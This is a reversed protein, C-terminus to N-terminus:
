LKPTTTLEVVAEATQAKAAKAKFGRHKVLASIDEVVDYDEGDVKLKVTPLPDPKETFAVAQVHEIGFPRAVEFADPYEVDLNVKSADIYYSQTIPVKQGGALLYVLRVYAPRNVRLHLKLEEKDSFALDTRGKNTWLEVRLDGSVEEGAALIKQDRLAQSLNQPLFPLEEPIASRPLAAEAGAVARGSKVERAWVALRLEQKGELYNGGLVLNLDTSPAGEQGEVATALSRDLDNGVQRGFASSFTTTGYTLPTVTWRMGPVVVQQRLQQALTEVAERVTEAPKGLLATAGDTARKKLQALQEIVAADSNGAIARALQEHGAAEGLSVRAAYYEKLAVSPKKATEAAQASELHARADALSQDREHRREAAAAARPVVALAWARDGDIYTEYSLGNLRVDSSTRTLSAIQQAYKEGKQEQEDRLASEIRVTIRAALDAAAQAKAASLPDGGGKFLAFGTLHTAAPYKTSTGGHAVWDPEAAGLAPLACAFALLIAKM